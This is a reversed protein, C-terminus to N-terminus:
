MDVFHTKGKESLSINYMERVVICFDPCHMACMQCGICGDSNVVIAKGDEDQKIIKTPCLSVCIGCSKCWAYRIGVKFKKNKLNFM